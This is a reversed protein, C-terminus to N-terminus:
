QDVRDLERWVLARDAQGRRAGAVTQLDGDAVGAHADLRVVEHVDEIGEERPEVYRTVRGSRELVVFAAEPQAEADGLREDVHMLALEGDRALEALAGGERDVQGRTRQVLGVRLR